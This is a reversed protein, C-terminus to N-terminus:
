HSTADTQEKKHAADFNVRGQLLIKEQIEKELRGKAAELSEELRTIRQDRDMVEERIDDVLKRYRDRVYEDDERRIDAEEKHRSKRNFWVELVRAIGAGGGIGLVLAILTQWIQDM